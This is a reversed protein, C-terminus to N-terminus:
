KAVANPKEHEQNVLTPFAIPTETDSYLNEYAEVQILTNQSFKIQSM